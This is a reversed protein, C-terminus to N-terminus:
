TLTSIEANKQAVIPETVMPLTYTRGIAVVESVPAPHPSVPSIAPETRYALLMIATIAVATTAIAIKNKYKM